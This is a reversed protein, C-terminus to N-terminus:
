HKGELDPNTMSLEGKKPPFIFRVPKKFFFKRLGVFIKRSEKFNVRRSQMAVTIALSFSVVFNMFGIGMVGIFSVFIEWSSIQNNLSVIALGLNGSAFTIHRIDLPLGLFEGVIGTCGLFIGLYFNGALSGLNRDIYHSFDYISKKPLIRNLFPHERIRQPIQNSINKNDYYGSILGALFLYVGAIAAHFLALSRTPHLDDIMIQAKEEDVLSEDMLFSYVLALVFAVPFAVLVNGVFAIFQSRSIKAILTAFKEAYDIEKTQRADLSQAIRSATMAPQKTALASKTVYIIIFGFSYNMSYFFARGFPALNLYFILNKFVCLFAVIFGGSAASRFMKWYEKRNSTIYHDGTKGAHETIQFALLSINNSIHEFISNKKNGFRVAQKLFNVEGQYEPINNNKVLLALLIKLRQINQSLRLLTYTINLSIGHKERSKRIIKIYNDCQSLMVTLQKYDGNETTRDFDPNNKFLHIYKDVEENQALFPSGFKELEPLRDVMEPDLGITTIRLSIILFANLIQETSLHSQNLEWVPRIELMKLLRMWVQNPIASVWLYDTKKYFVNELLYTFSNENQIEPLIRHAIKNNTEAFFGLNSHIGLDTLMRLSTRKQTLHLWYKSFGLNLDPYTNLLAILNEIQSIAKDTQKTYRPRIENVLAVLLHHDQKPNLAIQELIKKM